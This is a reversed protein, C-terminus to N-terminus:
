VDVDWFNCLVCRPGTPCLLRLIRFFNLIYIVSRYPHSEDCWILSTITFIYLFDFLSQFVFDFNYLLSFPSSRLRGGLIFRFFSYSIHLGRESQIVETEEKCSHIFGYFLYCFLLFHLLLLYIIPNFNPELFHLLCELRAV